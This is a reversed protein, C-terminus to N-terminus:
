PETINTAAQSSANAGQQKKILSLTAKGNTGITLEKVHNVTTFQYTNNNIVYSWPIAWTFKGKSYPAGQTGGAVNDAGGICKWGKGPVLNTGIELPIGPTHGFGDQYQFYENATVVAPVTHEKIFLGSFNVDEPGIYWDVVMAVSLPNQGNNDSNAQKELTVVSPKIVNFDIQLVNGNVTTEVQPTCEEEGAKLRNGSISSGGINNGVVNIAGLTLGTPIVSIDVREGVGLKRRKTNPPVTAVTESTIHATYLTASKGQAFFPTSEWHQGLMGQTDEIILATDADQSTMSFDLTYDYDPNPTDHYKPDTGKHVLSVTYKAGKPLTFSKTEVIGYNSNKRTRDQGFSDGEVPTLRVEYRESHSGSQDGISVSVNVTGSPPPTKSAANTPNTAQAAETQDDVGDADTDADFPNTGLQCEMENNLTDSDPDNGADNGQIADTNNNVIANMGYTIEWGDELTDGDSDPQVPNTHHTSLEQQNTLGDSDRDQTWPFNTADSVHPDYGSDRFCFEGLNNLGDGDADMWADAAALPNFGESIEWADWMWDGDTDDDLPNTGHTLVEAGDPLTDSDSDSNFPDTHWTLIELGDNLGDLDTDANWAPTYYVYVEAYDSLNDDDSDSDHPNGYYYYEELNTLQDADPDGQAGNVGVASKPDLNYDVEWGDPMEDGDTDSNNPNTTHINIEAADTLEDGDTDPFHPSTNYILYEAGDTLTDDDSDADNPDTYSLTRETQNDLNDGDPDGQAGNVGTASNPNLSNQVEWYDDLTDGDTDSSAPDTFYTNVEEEDGLGDQDTDWEFPDSHHTTLEEINTLGDGDFDATEANGGTPADTYRLRWFQRFEACAINQGCVAEAGSEIVPVYTWTMLDFSQQIFYTRGTKGWWSVVYEEAQAGVAVQLGENWDTATQAKAPLAAAMFVALMLLLAHKM